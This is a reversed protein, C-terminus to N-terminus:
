FSATSAKRHFFQHVLRGYGADRLMSRVHADKFPRNENPRQLREADDDFVSDLVGEAAFRDHRHRNMEPM